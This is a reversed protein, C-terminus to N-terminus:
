LSLQTPLAYVRAGTYINNAAVTTFHSRSVRLAIEIMQDKITRTLKKATPDPHMKAHAPLGKRSIILLAHNTHM